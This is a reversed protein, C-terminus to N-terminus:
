KTLVVVATDEVHQRMALPGSLPRLGNPLSAFSVNVDEGVTPAHQGGVEQRVNGVVGGWVTGHGLGPCTTARCTTTALAYTTRLLGDEMTTTASTVRAKAHGLALTSEAAHATGRTTSVSPLLALAGVAVAAVFGARARRDNRARLALFVLLGFVAVMAGHTAAKGPKKPAVTANGCGNGGASIETSYLQALGEIDDATPMRVGPDNPPTYRYMLVDRREMEDNMGLSHGLEHAVVHHLDYATVDSTGSVVHVDRDGHVIGDTATAPSVRGDPVPADKHITFAYAGNFVIDADLIRGSINDYTLITIALARGAPKYGGHIFFIGNKSDYGPKTPDGEAGSHARLEPAGVEGSWDRMARLTADVSGRTADNVSSDIAYDVTRTDWHVLEGSSTTKVVFADADTTVTALSTVLSAALALRAAGGIRARWSARSPTSRRATSQALFLAM